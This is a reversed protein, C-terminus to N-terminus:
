SHLIAHSALNTDIPECPWADEANPEALGRARSPLYRLYRQAGTSFSM